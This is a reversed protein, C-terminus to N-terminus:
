AIQTRMGLGGTLAHAIGRDSPNQSIDSNGSSAMYQRQNSNNARVAPRVAEVPNIKIPKIPNSVYMPNAVAVNKSTSNVVRVNPRNPASSTNVSNSKEKIAGLYARRRADHAEWNFSKGSSLKNQGYAWGIYNKGLTRSYQEPDADPNSNFMEKTKAYAPNTNIENRMFEAQADLSAQGRVMQGDKFLGKKTMYERLRDGRSGQWSIMGMNTLKNAADTHTGFLHDSSYGGERGVEATLAQAQSKSFGAKIMSNYVASQNKDSEGTLATNATDGSSSYLGGGFGGGTGNRRGYSALMVGGMGAPGALGIGYRGLGSWSEKVMKNIGDLTDNWGKIISGGIDRKELSGTWQGIRRGIADGVLSGAAGGALGGVPGLFSGALGGVGMGIMSGIGSGREANDLDGWDSALMGAGLLAGLIPVKRGLGTAFKGAKGPKPKQKSGTTSPVPAPSTKGNKGNKGAKGVGISPRPLSGFLGGGNKQRNVADILKRFLKRTETNNHEVEKNHEQQAKPLDESRKPKAKNFLWLAGRGMYKFANKAPSLMQNLERAADITPDISSVDPSMGSKIGDFGRKVTDNFTKENIGNANAVFRGQADRMATPDASTTKTTNKTTVVVGTQQKARSGQEGATSKAQKFTQGNSRQSVVERTQSAIVPKPTGTNVTVHITPKFKTIASVATSLKDQQLVNDKHQISSENLMNKLLDLIEATNAHVNNMGKNLEKLRREGILFGASDYQITM